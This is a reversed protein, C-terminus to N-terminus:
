FENKNVYNSRRSLINILNKYVYSLIEKLFISYAKNNLIYYIYKM